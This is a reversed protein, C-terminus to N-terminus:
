EDWYFRYFFFGDEFPHNDTVHHLLKEDMLRQGLKIADAEDLFFKRVLWTTMESGVMCRPYVTLRYRRDKIKVGGIDRMQRVLEKLDIKDISDNSPKAQTANHPKLKADQCWVTYKDAEELMLCLVKPDLSLQRTLQQASELKDKPFSKLKKFLQNQYLIGIIPIPRDSDPDIADQFQVQSEKLM